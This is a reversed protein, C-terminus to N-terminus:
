TLQPMSKGGRTFYTQTKDPRSPLYVDEHASVGTRTFRLEEGEDVLDTSFGESKNAFTDRVKSLQIHPRQAAKPHGVTISINACLWYSDINLLM